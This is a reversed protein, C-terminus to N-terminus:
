DDNAETIKEAIEEYTNSKIISDLFDLCALIFYADSTTLDESM